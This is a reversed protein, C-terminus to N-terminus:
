SPQKQLIPASVVSCDEVGAGSFILHPINRAEFNYFIKLEIKQIYCNGYCDKYSVDVIVRAYSRNKFTRNIIATYKSQPGNAELMIDFAITNDKYLIPALEISSSSSTFFDSEVGVLKVDYMERMGVNKLLVGNQSPHLSPKEEEATSDGNKSQITHKLYIAPRNWLDNPITASVSILPLVEKANDEKRADEQKRLSLIVAVYGAIAALASGFYGTFIVSWESPPNNFDIIGLISPLNFRDILFWAGPFIVLLLLLLLLTEQSYGLKKM